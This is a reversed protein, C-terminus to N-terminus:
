KFIARLQEPSLDSGLRTDQPLGAECRPNKGAVTDIAAPLKVVDPEPDDLGNVAALGKRLAYRIVTTQGDISLLPFKGNTGWYCSLGNSSAFTVLSPMKLNAQKYANLSGYDIAGNDTAVVDIRGHKALLGAMVRQRQGADWNTDVVHDVVLKLDPYKALGKKFADFLQKSSQAGPIGGLYVITGRKVTKNLWDAWQVGVADMDINVKAAIDTGVQAGIDNIQTVVSVGARTASRLSPLQAPGFEPMDILVDVQQAVLGSIDAAAKTQSGRADTFLIKQINPCKKAEDELTALSIKTWTDGFGKAFGVRLPKDGCVTTVDGPVPKAGGNAAGAEKRASSSSATESVCAASGTVALVAALSVLLANRPAAFM